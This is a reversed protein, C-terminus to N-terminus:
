YRRNYQNCAPALLFELNYHNKAQDIYKRYITGKNFREIALTVDTGVWNLWIKKKMKVALDMSGSPDSVGNMSIVLDAKRLAWAFKLQAFKSNYTDYFHFRHQPAFAQLDDVLKKSFYPLGNVVINM